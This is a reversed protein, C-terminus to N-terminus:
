RQRPAGTPQPQSPRGRDRDDPSAEFMAPDERRYPVQIVVTHPRGLLVARVRKSAQNYLIREWWHRAVYEPVVVFTIPAERDPPWASDLVDLYALLPGALARYPSEVVVLPVGPVQREFDARLRAASDPDDSIYVARIDDSVSRGVNIAQVVARTMGPIPVVVRHERHPARVVLDPAVALERSARSYQRNIFLMMLVLSPVLIVVLYAGDVFKESVVVVLVVATLVAGAANVVMRWRWGASREDLWHRVMGIQSLTFCVFVGVSYLPILAHTDGGFAALLAFAVAALLAIGWSYALRDGRFSFQRPMYGDEALIAALRPFANFSTNAALFLILATSVAFTVFLVSGNGFATAAALAVISPGGALTPRLGFQVAFVTLGIFLIGLLVAMATMTNAANRAEPPKFAPVGNAIAEVGTLAVSGGAFAKLLLLIGITSTGLPVADPEPPIPIATGSVIRFAGIAVIALALGIFLYTPVAFINGSERLGRLNAITILSISVFAIEIRLNYASPIVSQIQAIAAATSVAVTMVYDILLAAAAILGFIPALNTRAVVYAGGGNPYARCVQRYSVSVVALLLAIAIAVQISLLLAGAGALVLVRLIEETAYASSSIADSSFIAMAKKKSLREGIEEETSLPRGFVIGRIRRVLRGTPTLPRSAAAKAVLQGTGTYRFYPSHPRDVRVRRDAPKRGKLPRRGGIM